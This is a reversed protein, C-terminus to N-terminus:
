QGTGQTTGTTEAEEVNGKRFTEVATSAQETDPGGYDRGEILDHPDAVMLGLNTVTACGLNSSPTNTYDRLDAPKRWDPCEPPTVVYRGVVLRAANAGPAAGYALPADAVSLGRSELRRALVRRREAALPSDGADIWIEDRYGVRADKLFHALNRAQAESLTAGGAEFQVMHTLRVLEVENRKETNSEHWSGSSVCAGTAAALGVVLVTSITKATRRM